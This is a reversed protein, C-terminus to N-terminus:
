QKGKRACYFAACLSVLGLVTAALDPIRPATFAVSLLCFFQAHSM